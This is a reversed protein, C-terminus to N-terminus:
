GLMDMISSANSTLSQTYRQVVASYLSNTDSETSQSRSSLTNMLVSQMKSEMKAAFEDSESQSIKGDGDTDIQSFMEDTEDSKDSENMKAAMQEHFATFEAKDVSGDDNADMEAFMEEPDMGGGPPPGQPRNAEMQSVFTDHEAQTIKGDGDTDIQAFMEESKNSKGIKGAMQQGFTTFEAKDVSGDGNTDMKTFMEAPNPRTQASTATASSTYNYQGISSIM